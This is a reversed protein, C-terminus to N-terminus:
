GFRRLTWMVLALACAGLVGVLVPQYRDTAAWARGLAARIRDRRSRGGMDVIVVSVNDRGGHAVASEILRTVAAEQSGSQELVEAIETDTLEDNLGDSCLVVWDGPQLSVRERDPAPDGIGLTQTVLNRNPHDRAEAESIRKSQLLLELFSHDRTLRELRHRRWLYGRSDGVWVLEGIDGDLRLAVVTSGMGHQEPVTDSAHAIARHADLVAEALPRGAGALLTERAIGSAVEGAAHGGMGDAVFALGATLDWGIADENHDHVRGPHTDGVVRM